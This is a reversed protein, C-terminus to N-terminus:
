KTAPLSKHGAQGGSTVSRWYILESDDALSIRANSNVPETAAVTPVRKRGLVVGVGDKMAAKECREAALPQL